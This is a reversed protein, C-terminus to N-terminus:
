TAIKFDRKIQLRLGTSEIYPLIEILTLKVEDHLDPYKKILTKLILLAIGKVGIAEKKSKMLELCYDYIAVENDEPIECKSITRLIERRQSESTVKPLFEILQPIASQFLTKDKDASHNMVWCAHWAMPQNDTLALAILEARKKPQSIVIEVATDVMKRSSNGDLLTELEM